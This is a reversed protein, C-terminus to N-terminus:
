IVGIPKSALLSALEGPPLAAWRPREGAADAQVGFRVQLAAGVPPM